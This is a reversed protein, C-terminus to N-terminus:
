RPTLSLPSESYSPSYLWNAGLLVFFFVGWSSCGVVGVFFCLFSGGVFRLGLVGVGGGGGCFGWFFLFPFFWGFVGMELSFFFVFIFPSM